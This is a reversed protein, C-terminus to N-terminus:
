EVPQMLIVPFDITNGSFNDVDGSPVRSRFLGLSWYIDTNYALAIQGGDLLVPALSIGAQLYLHTSDKGIMSGYLINGDDDYIAYNQMQPTVVVLESDQYIANLALTTGLFNNLVLQIQYGNGDPRKVIKTNKELGVVGSIQFYASVVQAAGTWEGVLDDGDYQLLAYEAERVGTVVKVSAKRIKGTTNEKAILKFGDNTLEYSLWQAAEAPINVEIPLNSSMEVSAEGGADTLICYTADRNYKWIAGEQLITAQQTSVGDTLIIQASRGPYGTNADVSITVKNDTVEVVQCWDANVTATVTGTAAFEVTGTGGGAKMDLDSKIITLKVAAADDDSSCGAVFFLCFIILYLNLIKMM